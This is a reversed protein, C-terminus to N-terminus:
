SLALKVESGPPIYRPLLRFAAGMSIYWASRHRTIATSDNSGRMKSSSCMEAPRNISSTM